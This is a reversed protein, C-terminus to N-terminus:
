NKAKKAQKKFYNRLLFNHKLAEMNDDFGKTGKDLNKLTSRLDNAFVSDTVLMGITGEGSKMKSTLTSLDGSVYAIKDSSVNLKLITNELKSSLMTDTFLTAVLSKSNKFGKTIEQLDGTIIATRSGTVKINVIAQKLNDAIVTDMLLSWLTNSSNIKQTIKKLDGTIFKINDNTTNLTRLMEDTEIPKLTNLIDGDEVHAISGNKVSNINVLKNGMLGDTGVSAVASKKVYQKVKDEILMTVKITSDTNIEVQEVIGVNIGSFRVNNGEMLGNVNYFQASIRFTSSFLSRKAGIMYLLVVLFVTGAIVFIGLRANQSISKKM